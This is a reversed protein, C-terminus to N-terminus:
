PDSKALKLLEFSKLFETGEKGTAFDKPGGVVVAFVKPDAIIIQTRVLNSDKEVVIERGPFKEKGFVLDKASVKRGGNKAVAGQEAGDLIDKPPIVKLAGGPLVTCIVTYTKMDAEVTTTKVVIGGPANQDMTKIKAGAPFQVAFKGDKSTYKKGAEDDAMATLGIALVAFVVANRM